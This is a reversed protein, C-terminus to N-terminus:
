FGGIDLSDAFGEGLAGVMTGKQSVNEAATLNHIRTTEIVRQWVDHILYMRIAVVFALATVVYGIGATILLLPQEVVRLIQLGTQNSGSWNINSLALPIGFTAGAWLALLAGLLMSWGILKWYLDFMESADLDSEFRVDGFRIGSVWWRWEMAKFVGWLFPLPVVLMASPWML